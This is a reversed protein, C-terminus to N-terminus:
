RLPTLKREIVVGKGHTLGIVKGTFLDIVEGTPAKQNHHAM